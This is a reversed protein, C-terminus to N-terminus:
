RGEREHLLRALPEAAAEVAALAAPDLERLRTALWATRRSRVRRLTRAGEAHPDPRRPAPRDREAHARRARRARAAAVLKSMAAASVREGAALDGACIGPSYKITVLIAVQEPRSARAARRAACSGASASSLPVCRMRSQWRM